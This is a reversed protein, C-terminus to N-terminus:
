PDGDERESARLDDFEMLADDAISQLQARLHPASLLHGQDLWQSRWWGLSDQVGGAVPKSRLVGAVSAFPTGPQYPSLAPSDGWEVSVALQVSYHADGRQDVYVDAPAVHELDSTLLDVEYVVQAGKEDFWDGVVAGSPAHPAM